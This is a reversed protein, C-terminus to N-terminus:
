KEIKEKKFWNKTTKENEHTLCFKIAEKPIGGTHLICSPCVKETKKMYYDNNM